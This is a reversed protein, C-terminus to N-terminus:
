GRGVQFPQLIVLDDYDNLDLSCKMACLVENDIILSFYQLGIQNVLSSRYNALCINKHFQDSHFHFVEM